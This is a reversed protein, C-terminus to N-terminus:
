SLHTYSVAIIRVVLHRFLIPHVIRIRQVFFHLAEVPITGVNYPSFGDHQRKYVDLHTYSVAQQRNLFPKKGRGPKIYLGKIGESKYRKVWSNVSVNCM